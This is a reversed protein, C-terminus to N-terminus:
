SSVIGRHESGLPSRLSVVVLVVKLELAMVMMVQCWQRWCSEADVDRRPFTTEAADDSADSPLITVLM